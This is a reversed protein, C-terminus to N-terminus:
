KLVLYYVLLGVVVVHPVHIHQMSAYGRCSRESNDYNMSSALQCISFASLRSLNIRTAFTGAEYDPYSHGEDIDRVHFPVPLLYQSIMARNRVSAAVIILGNVPYNRCYDYLMM